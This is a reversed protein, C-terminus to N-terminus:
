GTAPRQVAPAAAGSAPAPAADAGAPAAVAAQLRPLLDGSAARVAARLGNAIAKANSRGHGIFVAGRVGILPAGGIETYDLSRAAARLAPRLIAGALQYHPKSAVARRVLRFILEQVGEGTKLLINGTFGDCVTVDAAGATVDKGEVNGVFNLGSGKLLPHAAQVLANGKTEEEGNSLLGVRPRSLGYVGEVYAAGLQAFQLLNLPECDANAGVDLVLCQGELLPVVAGIAPRHVGEIRGLTFLAAAMAAGSNGASYLADVKREALLRTAVVISSDRKRRVANVPHEHMEVVDPAEVLEIPLGAAGPIADLLPRVASTRGVLTVPVGSRAAEVAGEVAVAPAGDGGMADLAVGTV